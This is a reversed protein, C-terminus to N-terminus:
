LQQQPILEICKQTVYAEKAHVPQFLSAHCNLNDTTVTYSCQAKVTQSQLNETQGSDPTKVRSQDLTQIFRKFAANLEAENSPHHHHLKDALFLPKIILTAILVSLVSLVGILALPYVIALVFITILAPLLIITGYFAAQNILKNKQAYITHAEKQYQTLSHLLAHYAEQNLKNAESEAKRRLTKLHNYRTNVEYTCQKIASLIQKKEHPHIRQYSQLKQQHEDLARRAQKLDQKATALEDTPISIQKLQKYIAQMLPENIHSALLPLYEKLWNSHFCPTTNAATTKIDPERTAQTSKRQRLNIRSAAIVAPLTVGM